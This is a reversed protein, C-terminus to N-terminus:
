NETEDCGGEKLEAMECYGKYDKHIGLLKCWGDEEDVVENYKCEECHIIEILRGQEELDEYHALKKLANLTDEQRQCYERHQKIEGMEMYRTTEDWVRALDEVNWKYFDILETLRSM